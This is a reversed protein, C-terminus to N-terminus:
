REEGKLLERFAALLEDYEAIDICVGWGARPQTDSFVMVDAFTLGGVRVDTVRQAPGFRFAAFLEDFDGLIVAMECPILSYQYITRAM